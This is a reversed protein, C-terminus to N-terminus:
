GAEAERDQMKEIHVRGRNECFISSLKCSFYSFQFYRYPFFPWGDDRPQKSEMSVPFLQLNELPVQYKFKQNKM